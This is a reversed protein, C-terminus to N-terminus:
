DKSGEVVVGYAAIGPRSASFYCSSRHLNQHDVIRLQVEVGRPLRKRTVREREDLRVVLRVLNDLHGVRIPVRDLARDLPAPELPRM